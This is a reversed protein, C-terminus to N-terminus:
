FLSIFFKHLFYGAVLLAIGGLYCTWFGLQLRNAVLFPVFFLLSVPIGVFISRAFIVSNQPNYFEFHSFLLVLLTTIPLAVIFGAVQPKKGSLWSCFSIVSAAIIFKLIMQVM